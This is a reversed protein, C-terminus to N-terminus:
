TRGGMEHWGDSANVVKVVLLILPVQILVGLVIVLVAGSEFGFLNIAVALEFFSM